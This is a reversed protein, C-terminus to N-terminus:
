LRTAKTLSLCRLSCHWTEMRSFHKESILISPKFVYVFSKFTLYLVSYCISSKWLFTNIFFTKFSLISLHSLKSREVKFSGKTATFLFFQLFPLSLKMSITISLLTSLMWLNFGVWSSFAAANSSIPLEAIRVKIPHGDM